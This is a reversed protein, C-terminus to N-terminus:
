WLQLLLSTCLQRKPKRLVLRDPLKLFRYYQDSDYAQQRGQICGTETNAEQRGAFTSCVVGKCLLCPENTCFPTSRTNTRGHKVWARRHGSTRWAGREGQLNQRSPGCVCGAAETHSCAQVLVQSPHAALRHRAREPFPATVRLTGSTQVPLAHSDCPASGTDPRRCKWAAHTHTHTHLTPRAQLGEQVASGARLATCRCPQTSSRRMDHTSAGGRM